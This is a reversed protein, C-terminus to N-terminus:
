LAAAAADVEVLEELVDLRDFVLELVHLLQIGAELRRVLVALSQVVRFCHLLESRLHVGVDGGSQLLRLQNLDPQLSQIPGVSSM